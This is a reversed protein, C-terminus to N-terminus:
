DRVVGSPTRRYVRVISEAGGRDIERVAGWSQPALTAVYARCARVARRLSRTQVSPTGGSARVYYVTEASM